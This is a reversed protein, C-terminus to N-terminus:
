KIIATVFLAYVFADKFCVTALDILHKFMVKLLKTRTLVNFM